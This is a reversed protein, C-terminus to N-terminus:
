SACTCSSVIGSGIQNENIAGTFKAPLGNGIDRLAQTPQWIGFLGPLREPRDMMSLENRIPGEQMCGLLM